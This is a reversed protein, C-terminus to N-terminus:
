LGIERRLVDGLLVIGFVALPISFFYLAYAHAIGASALCWIGALFKTFNNM